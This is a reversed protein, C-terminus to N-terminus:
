NEKKYQQILMNHNKTMLKETEWYEKTEDCFEYFQFCKIRKNLYTMTEKMKITKVVHTKMCSFCFKREYKVISERKIM